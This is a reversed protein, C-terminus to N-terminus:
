PPKYYYGSPYGESIKSGLPQTSGEHVERVEPPPRWLSSDRHGLHPWCPIEGGAVVSNPQATAATIEDHKQNVPSPLKTLM